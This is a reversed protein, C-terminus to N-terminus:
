NLIREFLSLYQAVAHTETYGAEYAKRGNAVLRKALAPDSFLSAIARAMAPADDVPVLLGTEGDDVVFRPGQSAAAVMPVGAMWGELLVSGLPEHRSPVVYVDAAAFYPMPDAQWGLFHVRDAVGKEGAHVGLAARLPGDGALWLHAGDLDGQDLEALVDILIDFGKNKHLRGLAFILPAGEPTDLAARDQAPEVARDDVFNAIFHTRNEPWGGRRCYDVIDPTICVLHDCHRYNKLNYYGGLRALHVFDGKPCKASARSMYTLVIDPDFAAIERGFIAKTKRDLLGGFPAQAVPVGGSALAAARGADPRILAREEVGAQALAVCLRVFHMEAGGEAAGALAQLVRM